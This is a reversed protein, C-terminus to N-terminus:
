NSSEGYEMVWRLAAEFDAFKLEQGEPCAYEVLDVKCAEPKPADPSNNALTNADRLAADFRGLHKGAVVYVACAANRESSEQDACLARTERAYDEWFPAFRPESSVDVLEGGRVNYLVPPSYSGAGSAFQYRFRDDQRYIEVVGDKDIDEPFRDTGSGDISEFTLTKLAGNWPTVLTLTACCHAGGTYGQLLVSPAPDSAALKGIGVWREFASNSSEDETVVLVPYGPIKIAASAKIMGEGDSLPSLTVEAGDGIIKAPTPHESFNVAEFVQAAAPGGALMGLAALMGAAARACNRGITM